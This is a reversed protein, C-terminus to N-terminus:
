NSARNPDMFIKATNAVSLEKAGKAVKDWKQEMMKMFNAKSVMGTKDMDCQQALAMAFEGDREPNAAFSAPAALAFAAVAFASSLALNRLQM